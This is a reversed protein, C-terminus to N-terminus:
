FQFYIFAEPERNALLVMLCVLAWHCAVHTWYMPARIRRLAAVILWPLSYVVCYGLILTGVFLDNGTLGPSMHGVAEVLWGLSTARFLTWGLLTLTMMVTWSSVLRWRNSPKWRGDLGVARYAILLLAHFLGWVVFHWHAGHWLGSLGFTVAVIWVFKTRSSVHSGGLPIYVYDRIWTSLSIHWRRWFDSPTLAAYPANFNEMLDLGLLRSSGRAIDTYASFDALIQIAFAVTGAFLVWASPHELMYVQQVFPALNDAVVLKKFFGVVLLPIASELFEWRWHRTSEIQPLLRRAREIPGAVLQPFCSVFVAFDLFSRRAKLKGRYVDITYSLTQFTYFSIGAPLLVYLMVPESRVGLTSLADVASSVFFNYYKFVGLMGLNVALSVGLVIRREVSRRDPRGLLLGCVYDVITSVGILICIWPHVWGYFAYSAVLLILNQAVRVRVGWYLLLVIPLFLAYNTDTFHM